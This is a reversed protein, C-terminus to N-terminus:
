PVAKENLARWVREPTIPLDYIRTGIAAAVANAVAAVPPVMPPEGVGKAGYPGDGGPTELLITEILPVDLATPTRYDLLSPNRVQGEDDYQVEEWLAMSASQAAAGQIQGEVALPNIAKGVDQATVLRTLTVRGTGPDVAVQAVSAAFSRTPKRMPASGQGVLPGWKASWSTGLEYLKQFSCSQEPRAVVFVGEDNVGLEAEPLRETPDSRLKDLTAYGSIFSVNSL